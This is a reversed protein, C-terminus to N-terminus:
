WSVRILYRGLPLEGRSILDSLITQPEPAQRYKEFDYKGEPLEQWYKIMGRGGSYEPSEPIYVKELYPSDYGNRARSDAKMAAYSAKNSEVEEHTWPDMGEENEDPDSMDYLHHSDNPLYDGTQQGVYRCGYVRTSISDLSPLCDEQYRSHDIMDMAFLTDTPPTYTM